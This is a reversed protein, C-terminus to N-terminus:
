NIGQRRKHLLPVLTVTLCVPRLRNTDTVERTISGSDKFQLSSCQRSQQLCLSISCLLRKRERSNTEWLDWSINNYRVDATIIGDASWAFLNTFTESYACCM